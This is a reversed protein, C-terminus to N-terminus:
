PYDTITEAFHFHATHGQVVAVAYHGCEHLLIVTPAFLVGFFLRSLNQSM